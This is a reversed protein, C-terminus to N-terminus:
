LEGNEGIGDNNILGTNGSGNNNMIANSGFGIVILGDEGLGDNSIASVIGLGNNSMGANIGFGPGITAVFDSIDYGRLVVDKVTGLLTGNGFGATVVLAISM